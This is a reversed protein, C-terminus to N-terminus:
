IQKRRGFRYRLGEKIIYLFVGAVVRAGRVVKSKRHYSVNVQVQEIKLNNKIAGIMMSNDIIYGGLIHDKLKEVANKNFGIVGCNTDKFDRRFLLNFTTRWVFNGLRHRFPVGDWDRNGMVFDPKNNELADFIKLAEQPHYQMDADMLVLHTFEPHNSLLHELGTKIAEGKGKNTEHRLALAGNSKCISFTNDTSGDDVVVPTIGLKSVEKVVTEINKEENYAPIIVFRSM